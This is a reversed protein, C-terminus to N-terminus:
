GRGFRRSYVLPRGSRPLDGLAAIWRRIRCLGRCGELSERVERIVVLAATLGIESSDTLTATQTREGIQQCERFEEHKQPSPL